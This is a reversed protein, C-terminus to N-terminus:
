WSTGTAVKLLVAARDDNIGARLRYGNYISRPDVVKVTAGPLIPAASAM